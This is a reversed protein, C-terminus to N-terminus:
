ECVVKGFFMRVIFSPICFGTTVNVFAAAVLSWGVIYGVLPMGAQFGWAAAGIMITALACAFRRRVGSRPLAPTGLLYRLGYNYFVDFPHGPLIAGLAAFPALAWLITPSALATGVAAWVMCIAPSLRLPYNIQACTKDDLGCFGQAQINERVTGLITLM